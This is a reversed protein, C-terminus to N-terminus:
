FIRDSYFVTISVVLFVTGIFETSLSTWFLIWTLKGYRTADAGWITLPRDFSSQANKRTKRATLRFDLCRTVVSFCSTFAAILLLLLSAAFCLKFGGHLCFDKNQLLSFGVSLGAISTGSILAIAVTLQNIALAQWRNFPTDM